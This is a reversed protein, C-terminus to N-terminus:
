SQLVYVTFVVFVTPFVWRCVRDIRSAVEKRGKTAMYSVAMSEILALFVLVTSGAIFTDMITFYSLRPVINSQAFNFAILTLMSTASMGIQPGYQSPDIWFVTWSMAVILCLPVIIKWVYYSSLRKAPIHFDFRSFKGDIVEVNHTVIKAFVNRIQWDPINLQRDTRGTVDDNVSLVLNQQSYIPTFVSIVIEHRDFPFEAARYPFVLAGSLRKGYTMQGGPGVRVSDPNRQFLRGSNIIDIGPTWVEDLRFECGEFNVLRDDTWNQQLWFDVRITQDVDSITTVDILFLGVKVETPKDDSGPREDVRLQPLDCKGAGSEPSPATQSQAAMPLLLIVFLVIAAVKTAFRVFPM